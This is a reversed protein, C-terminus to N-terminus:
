RRAPSPNEPSTGYTDETPLELSIKTGEGPKAQIRLWAGLRDARAAINRLGRGKRDTDSPAFGSGDDEIEFQLGGRTTHLSFVIQRANGHRISNSLAERAIQLLHTAQHSHLRQAAIDDIRAEVRAPNPGSSTLALSQLATKFEAGSLPDQELRGIFQRVERIVRNLDATVAKLRREANEPEPRLMRTCDDLNLGAAYISQIIGDHLDRGLRDREELSARLQRESSRLAEDAEKRDTIDRAIGQIGVPKGNEFLLRSNVELILSQGNRARVRVEYSTRPAGAIKSAIQKRAIPLDEPEILSEINTGLLEKETRGLLEQGSNNISTIVGQLDHSYIIDNANEFLDLYREELAAERERVVKTQIGVRHRLLTIWVAGLLVVGGLSGLAWRAQRQRWVPSSELIACDDAGRLWLSFEQTAKHDSSDPTCVGTVRIKGGVLRHPDPIPWANQYRARFVRQESEIVLASHDRHHEGAKLVIGELTVLEGDASGDAADRLSTRRAEPALTQGTKRFMADRLVPRNFTPAAFGVADVVDGPQPNIHESPLVHVDGRSDRLYFGRGPWSWTVVGQLRTRHEAGGGPSYAMLSASSRIPVSFPDLPPPRIVEIANTSQTLLHFGILQRHQNYATGAVGRIRVRADVWSPAKEADFELIRVELRASGSALVIVLHGWDVSQRNVVGEVQVWQSDHRGFALEEIAVPLPTPLADRRLVTIKDALVIPSFLGQASTGHVEVLDGQKPLNELFYVYVGASSDQVFLLEGRRNSCTVVGQIRCPIKKEADISSLELVARATTIESPPNDSPSQAVALTVLTMWALGLSLLAIRAVKLVTIRSPRQVSNPHM